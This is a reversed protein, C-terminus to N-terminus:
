LQSLDKGLEVVIAALKRRGVIPQETVLEGALDLVVHQAKGIRRFPCNQGDSELMKVIASPHAPEIHLVTGLKTRILRSRTRDRDGHKRYRRRSRLLEEREGRNFDVDVAHLDPNVSNARHVGPGLRRRDLQGLIAIAVAQPSRRNGQRFFNVSRDGSRHEILKDLTAQGRSGRLIVRWSSLAPNRPGFTLLPSQTQWRSFIAVLLGEDCPHQPQLAERETKRSRHSGRAAARGPISYCSDHRLTQFTCTGFSQRTLDNRRRPVTLRKLPSLLFLSGRSMRSRSQSLLAFKGGWRRM